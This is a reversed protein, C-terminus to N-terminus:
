LRCVECVDLVFVPGTPSETAESQHGFAARMVAIAPDVQEDPVGILLSGNGRRLFGGVSDIRTVGFGGTVLSEVVRDAAGPELVSLLLKM